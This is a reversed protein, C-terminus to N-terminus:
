SGGSGAHLKHSFTKSIYSYFYCNYLSIINKSYILLKQYGLLADLSLVFAFAISIAIWAKSIDVLETKSTRIKGLKIAM